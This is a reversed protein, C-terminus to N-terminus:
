GDEGNTVEGSSKTPVNEATQRAAEDNKAGSAEVDTRVNVQEGDPKQVYVASEKKAETNQQQPKMEVKELFSSINHWVFRLSIKYVM